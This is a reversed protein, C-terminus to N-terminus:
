PSLAATGYADGYNGGAIMGADPKSGNTSTAELYYNDNGKYIVDRWSADVASPNVWAELTMGTSLHLSAADPVSVLANSGNFQLAKGYKGSAAWTANTITGTHGNGSGDTATTGSGADFGYAAVLGSPGAPTTVSATNSYASLNGAADTARVRYSYPTSASVSTDKYSTGSPTAIQTFNTCGTGSCREVLYGTVGVNDTSAA